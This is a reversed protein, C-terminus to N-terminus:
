ELSTGAAPKLLQFPSDFASVRSAGAGGFALGQSRGAPLWEIPRAEGRHVPIWYGPQSVDYRITYVVPVTVTRESPGAMAREPPMNFTWQRAAAVANAELIRTTSRSVKEGLHGKFDHTLSRVAQVKEARGDASVLIALMVAGTRDTMQLGEPYRPPSLKKGTIPAIVGDPLIAKPDDSDGFSSGDILVNFKEGEQTAALVLRFSTLTQVPQGKVLVPKFHWERAKALLAERLPATVRQTSLEASVVSGDTAILVKGEVEMLRLTELAPPEVPTASQAPVFLALGLALWAAPSSLPKM